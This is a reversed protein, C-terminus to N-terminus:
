SAQDLARVIGASILRAFSGRRMPARKGEEKRERPNPNREHRTSRTPPLLVIKKEVRGSRLLARKDKDFQNQDDGEHHYYEVCHAPTGDSKLKDVVYCRTTTFEIAFVPHPFKHAEAEGCKANMCSLAFGPKGNIAHKLTRDLEVRQKAWSVPVPFKFDPEGTRRVNTTSYMKLIHRRKLTKTKKTMEFDGKGQDM